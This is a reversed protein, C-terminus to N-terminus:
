DLPVKLYGVLFSEQDGFWTKQKTEAWGYCSHVLPSEALWVEVALKPLAKATGCSRAM